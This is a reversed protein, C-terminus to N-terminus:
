RRAARRVAAEIRTTFWAAIDTWRAEPLQDYKAVHFHDALEVYIAGYSAGGAEHLRKVSQQVSRQHEPSLTEPGLRELIEPILALSAGHSELRGEVAGRWAELDALQAEYRAQRRFLAALQEYYAAWELAPANEEPATPRTALPETAPTAPPIADLELRQAGVRALWQKLPEAKPSPISQMIRLITETDAADTQYSKGDASRMKLQRCNASLELFGEDTIRRKMDFWYQRPKPADTILGVVDIVSFFWCDDLWIRRIRADAQEEILALATAGDTTADAGSGDTM